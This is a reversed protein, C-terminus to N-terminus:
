KQNQIMITCFYGRHITLNGPEPGSGGRVGGVGDFEYGFTLELSVALGAEVRFIEEIQENILLTAVHLVLIHHASNGLEVQRGTHLAVRPALAGLDVAEFHVAFAERLPPDAVLLTLAGAAAVFCVALVLDVLSLLHGIEPV